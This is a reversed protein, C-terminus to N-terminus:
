PCHSDHDGASQAPISSGDSIEGECGRWAKFLAKPLPRVVVM